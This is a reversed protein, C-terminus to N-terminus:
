AKETAGCSQQLQILNDNFQDLGQSIIANAAKGSEASGWLNMLATADENCATYLIGLVDALSKGDKMLQSFSEGTQEKIVKAVDSSDTGLEKLMSSIYTTGEATNIGAKTISIYASELNDLEVNYASATAIAKGMNASLDAVTTVGLNQVTILSDAIEMATGASDGYANMATTLVSLASATDTFGATALKSATGAMSVSQEVATGASIANYAVDALVDVAIGTESSLERIEDTLMSMSGEGAITQLKAYSTEVKEAEEACEMLAGAIKKLGAVIGASALFSELGQMANTMDDGSDEGRRGTEEFTDGLKEVERETDETADDIGSMSEEIGDGIGRFFDPLEGMTQRMEDETMGSQQAIEQFSEIMGQAMEEAFQQMSDSTKDADTVVAKLVSDAALEVDQFSDAVSGVETGIGQMKKSINDVMNFIVSLNAM